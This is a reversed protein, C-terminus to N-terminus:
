YERTKKIGPEPIAYAGKEDAPLPTPSDSSIIDKTNPSFEHDSNMFDDMTLEQGTHAAMRGLSTAASAMVGREVENYPQDRRIAEVLHDWELQYPNPERVTQPFRWALNETKARRNRNINHDKYIRSYAPTHAASSVVASGKTGHAYVAFENHTGQMNRGYMFYKTGDPFTYECTYNDFNQDVNDGRYHRGGSGSCSVPWDGKMWCAEDVNHILFDSVAGGSLWLFSHFRRIQYMLESPYKDKDYPPTFASGIPGQQRYSRLMTIDGIQGDQIRELLAQRSECHRCMLGVGVKLNKAQAKKNLELMRRATPGDAIVPKEMFVNLGKKIAYEFFVWRFALPTTFIAIDGPSLQDMAEKYGEFGIIRRDKPVNVKDAINKRKPDTLTRYARDLKDEYVDVMSHLEIPGLSDSVSLAQSAAGTGRGGCGLLTVKLKHDDAAHVHPLAVGALAGAAAIQGSDKIFHRRSKLPQKEENM